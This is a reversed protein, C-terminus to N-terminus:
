GLPGIAREVAEVLAGSQVLEVAEDIDPKLRRDESLFAIEERVAAV